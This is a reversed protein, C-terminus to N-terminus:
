WVLAMLCVLVMFMSAGGSVVKPTPIQQHRWFVAADVKGMLYDMNGFVGHGIALAKSEDIDGAEDTAPKAKATPRKSPRHGTAEVM